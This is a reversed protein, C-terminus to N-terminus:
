KLYCMRCVACYKDTSGVDVLKESQIIKKSFIGPLGDKCVSCLAKLKIIDDCIPILKHIEGFNNRDSAGDLGIVIVNKHHSEVSLKVFEYM